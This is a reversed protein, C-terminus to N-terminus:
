IRVRIREADADRAYYGDPRITHPWRAMQDRTLHGDLPQRRVRGNVRRPKVPAALIAPLGLQITIRMIEECWPQTNHDGEAGNGPVGRDRLAAHVMEHRLVDEAFRMGLKDWISWANGHPDLLSPHLTIRGDDYTHGLAYGHPTLGWVIGHYRLRGAFHEANLRDLYRRGLGRRRGV